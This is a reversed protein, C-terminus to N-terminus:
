HGGLRGAAARGPRPPDRRRQRHAAVMGNGAGAAGRRRCASAAAHGPQRDARQREGDPVREGGRRDQGDPECRRRHGPDHQGGAPRHRGPIRRHGPRAAGPGACARRLLGNGAGPWARRPVGPVGRGLRHRLEDRHGGSAGAEGRHQRTAHAGARGREAPNGGRLGPRLGGPLRAAHGAAGARAPRGPQRRHAAIRHDADRHRSGAGAHPVAAVGRDGPAPLRCPRRTRAPGVACSAAWRGSGPRRHAPLRDRVPRNGPARAGAPCAARGDARGHHGAQRASGAALDPRIAAVPMAARPDLGLMTGNVQSALALPLRLVPTAGTVGRARTLSTVQGMPLSTAPPLTVRLDAGTSFAARDGASRQWSSWQAVAVVTTAVALVMLLVPGAERLPRRSIQWAAMAATIARGRGAARDALRVVAPLARLMVVAGAALALVPASVLVPDVGIAGNLGASVPASYHVLQWSALAALVVLALDAGAHVASALARRRGSAARQAVPSPAARLWPLSIVVACAAAALGAALWAVPPYAAPLRLGTAVLPGRRALAPLLSGGLLPGAVAAPVVLIVGEALGSRALQWRSAGRSALMAIEGERQSSLLSTSLVLTAGAVVLLILVGIALQSRAVVLATGLGTLLGPLGTSVQINQMGPAPLAAFSITAPPIRGSLLSARSALLPSFIEFGGDSRPPSLLGARQWYRSAPDLPRLIGTIRVPLAAGTSTAHLRVVAGPALHLRRAEAATVAAPVPGTRGAATPWGGRVLAAHAQLGDVATVHTEANRGARAPLGVYDSSLISSVAVPVGPLLRRLAARGGRAAARAAAPGSVSAPVIVATGPNGALTRRVAYGTVIGTFSALAALLTAALVVALM